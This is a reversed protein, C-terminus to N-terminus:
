RMFKWCTLSERRLASEFQPLPAHAAQPDPQINMSNLASSVGCERACCAGFRSQFAHRLGPAWGEGRLGAKRGFPGSCRKAAGKPTVLGWAASQSPGQSNYSTPRRGGFDLGGRGIPGLRGDVRGKPVHRTGACPPVPFPICFSFAAFLPGTEIVYRLTNPPAFPSRVGSRIM